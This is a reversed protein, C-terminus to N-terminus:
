KNRFKELIEKFNVKKEPHPDSVLIETEELETIVNITDKCISIVLYKTGVQILQLVKNQSIKYSDIVKFNSNKYQNVKAKGVFKSTFYAAVLIFFLILLLGVLQMASDFTTVKEPVSKVTDTNLKDLLDDALM